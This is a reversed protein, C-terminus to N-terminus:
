VCHWAPRVYSQCFLTLCSTKKLRYPSKLVSSLDSSVLPQLFPSMHSLLYLLDDVLRLNGAGGTWIKFHIQASEKQTVKSACFICTYDKKQYSVSYIKVFDSVDM